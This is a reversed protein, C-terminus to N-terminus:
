AADVAPRGPGRRNKLFRVLLYAAAALVLVVVLYDVYHLKDKINTWNDGAARGALTLALNWPLAGLFTLVSFRVIPMRAAGAPLSIFTRIVPLM